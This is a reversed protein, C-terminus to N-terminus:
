FNSFVFVNFINVQCDIEQGHGGCQDVREDVVEDVGLESSVEVPESDEFVSAAYSYKDDLIM